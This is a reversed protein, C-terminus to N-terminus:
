IGFWELDYDDFLSYSLKVGEESIISKKEKNIIEYKIIGYNLLVRPGAENDEEFYFSDSDVFCDKLWKYIPNLKSNINIRVFFDLDDSNFGGHKSYIETEFNNKLSSMMLGDVIYEPTENKEFFIKLKIKHSSDNVIDGWSDRSFDINSMLNCVKAKGYDTSNEENNKNIKFIAESIIEKTRARLNPHLKEILKYYDEWGEGNDLKTSNNRFIKYGEEWCKSGIEVNKVVEQISDSIISKTDDLSQAKTFVSHIFLIFAVATGEYEDYLSESFIEYDEGSENKILLNNVANFEFESDDIQGDSHIESCLDNVDDESVESDYHKSDNFVNAIDEFNEFGNLNNITLEGKKTEYLEIDLGLDVFDKSSFNYPKREFLKIFDKKSISVDFSGIGWNMCCSLILDNQSVILNEKVGSYAVIRMNFVDDNNPAFENLKDIHYDIFNKM